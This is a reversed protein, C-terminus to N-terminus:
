GRVPVVRPPRIPDIPPLTRGPALRATPQGVPTTFPQVDGVCTTGRRPPTGTLLYSDVASTVCTSTGYATHGWNDSSLLVSNPLLRSATVAGDYNTAPDWYNGVVLM